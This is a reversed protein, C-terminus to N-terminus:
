CCFQGLTTWLKILKKFSTGQMINMLEDTNAFQELTFYRYLVTGDSHPPWPPRAGRVAAQAVGM